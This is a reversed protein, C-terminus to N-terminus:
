TFALNNTRTRGIINPGREKEKKRKELKTQAFKLSTPTLM